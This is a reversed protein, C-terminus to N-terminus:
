GELHKVVSTALDASLNFTFTGLNNGIVITGKLNGLNYQDTILANVQAATVPLITGDQNTFVTNEPIFQQVGRVPANLVAPWFCDMQGSGSCKLYHSNDGDATYLSYKVEKYGDPGGGVKAKTWCVEASTTFFASSCLLAVTFQKTKM